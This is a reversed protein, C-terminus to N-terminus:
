GVGTLSVKFDAPSLQQAVTGVPNVVPNLPTIPIPVPKPLPKYFIRPPNDQTLLMTEGAFRFNFIPVGFLCFGLDYRTPIHVQIRPIETIALSVCIKDLGLDFKVPEAPNGVLTVHIDDLGANVVVPKGPVGAISANVGVSGGLQVPNLHITYETPIDVKSGGM